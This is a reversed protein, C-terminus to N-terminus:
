NRQRTTFHASFRGTEGVMRPVSGSAQITYIGCRAFDGASGGNGPFTEGFYHCFHLVRDTRKAPRILDATRVLSNWCQKAQRKRVGYGLSGDVGRPAAQGAGPHSFGSDPGSCRLGPPRAPSVVVIRRDPLFSIVVLRENMLPAAAPATAAGSAVGAM